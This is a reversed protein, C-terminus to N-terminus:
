VKPWPREDEEVTAAICAPLKAWDDQIFEQFINCMEKDCGKLYGSSEHSIHVCEAEDTRCHTGNVVEVTIKAM